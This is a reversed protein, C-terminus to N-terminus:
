LLQRVHRHRISLCGDDVDLLQSGFSVVGEYTPHNSLHGLSSPTAITYTYIV